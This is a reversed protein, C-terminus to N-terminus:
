PLRFWLSPSATSSQPQPLTGVWASGNMECFAARSSPVPSGDSFVAINWGQSASVQYLFSILRVLFICPTLYSQPPFYLLFPCTPPLWVASYENRTAETVCIRLSPPKVCIYTNEEIPKEPSETTLFGCIICSVQTWNRTRSSARSFSIATWELIRAQSIGRVSSIPPSRDM